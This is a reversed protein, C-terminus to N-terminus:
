QPWRKRLEDLEVETVPGNEEAMQEAILSAAEITGKCTTVPPPNAEALAARATCSNCSGLTYSACNRGTMKEMACRDEAIRELAREMVNSARMADSFSEVQERMDRRYAREWGCSCDTM